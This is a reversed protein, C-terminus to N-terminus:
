PAPLGPILISISLWRTRPISLAEGTGVTAARSDWRLKNETKHFPSVLWRLACPFLLMTKTRAHFGFAAARCQRAPSLTAAFAQERFANLEVVRTVRLRLKLQMEINRNCIANRPYLKVADM